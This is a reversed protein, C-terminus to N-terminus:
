DPLLLSSSVGVVVFCIEFLVLLIITSEKKTVTKKRETGDAGLQRDEPFHQGAATCSHALDDDGRWHLHQLDLHLIGPAQTPRASSVCM